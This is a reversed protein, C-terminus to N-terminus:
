KRESGRNGKGSKEERGRSRRRYNGRIEEVNGDRMEGVLWMLM